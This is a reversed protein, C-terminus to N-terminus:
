TGLIVSSCYVSYLSILRRQIAVSGIRVQCVGHYGDRTPKGITRRDRSVYKILSIDIHLENAWYRKETEEDQDYRLHLDYRNKTRDVEYLKECASVFFLIMKADSAGLTTSNNKSGEGYYLMALALELVSNNETPLSEFTNLAEIRASDIRSQKQKNHAIM